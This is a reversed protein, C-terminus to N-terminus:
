FKIKEGILVPSLKKADIRLGGDHEIKITYIMGPIFKVGPAELQASKIGIRGAKKPDFAYEWFEQWLKREFGNKAGEVEYGFPIENVKNINFVEVGNDTLMFAKMFFYASKGKLSHGKKVYLDDFRVVLSQFQISNGSFTFYKPALPLMKTNYELFKITTYAKGTKQDFKVDTVIVEAVRSEATLREIVKLLIQNERFNKVVLFIVLFFVLGAALIGIKQIRLGM